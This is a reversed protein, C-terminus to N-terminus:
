TLLSRVLYIKKPMEAVKMREGDWDDGACWSKKPMTSFGREYIMVIKTFTHVALADSSLAVGVDCTKGPTSNRPHPQEKGDLM